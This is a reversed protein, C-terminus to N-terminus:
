AFDALRVTCIYTKIRIPSNVGTLAINLNDFDKELM